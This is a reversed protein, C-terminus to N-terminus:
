ETREKLVTRIAEIHPRVREWTDAPFNGAQREMADVHSMFRSFNWSAPVNAEGEPEPLYKTTLKHWSINKGEPVGELVPYKEYFQIAYYLTRESTNLSEALRQVIKKGYTSQRDLNTEAAIRAGLQHYGEVLAWRSTFVAETVIARCDDELSQYWDATIYDTM